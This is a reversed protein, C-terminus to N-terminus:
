VSLLFWLFGGLRSQYKKNSNNAAANATVNNAATNTVAATGAAATDAATDTVAQDGVSTTYASDSETGPQPRAGDAVAYVSAAALMASVSVACITVLVKKM